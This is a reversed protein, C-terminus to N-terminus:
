QMIKTAFIFLFHLSKANKVLFNIIKHEFVDKKMMITTSIIFFHAVPREWASYGSM